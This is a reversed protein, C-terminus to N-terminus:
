ILAFPTKETTSDDFVQKTVEYERGGFSFHVFGEEDAADDGVELVTGLPFRDTLVEGNKEETNAHFEITVLRSM